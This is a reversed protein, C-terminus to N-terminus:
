HKHTVHTLLEEKVKDTQKLLKFEAIITVYKM